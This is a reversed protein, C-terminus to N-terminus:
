GAEERMLKEQIAAEVFDKIDGKTYGAKVVRDKVQDYLKDNIQISAM